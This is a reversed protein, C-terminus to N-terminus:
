TWHAFNLTFPLRTHRDIPAKQITCAQRRDEQLRLVAEEPHPADIPAVVVGGAEVPETSSGCFVNAGGVKPVREGACQVRLEQVRYEAFNLVM